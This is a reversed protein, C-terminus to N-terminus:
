RSKISFFILNTKPSFHSHNMETNLLNYLCQFSQEAFDNWADGLGWANSGSLHAGSLHGWSFDFGQEIHSRAM